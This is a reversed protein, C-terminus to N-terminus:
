QVDLAREVERRAVDKPYPSRIAPVAVSGVWALEATAVGTEPFTTTKASVSASASPTRATLRLSPETAETTSDTPTVAGMVDVPPAVGVIPILAAVSKSGPEM